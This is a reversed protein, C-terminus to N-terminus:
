VRYTYNAFAGLLDVTTTLAKDLNLEVLVYETNALWIPTTLTLVLKHQEVNIRNAAVLSYSFANTTVVAVATDAGRSVKNVVCTLADCDAILVEYDIEISKLYCGKEGRANSPIVIPINVTCVEDAAAVHACITDAVQGAAWTWVGTVRHFLTPPIYKCMHTDNVTGM